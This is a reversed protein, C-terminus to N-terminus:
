MGRGWEHEEFPPPRSPTVKRMLRAKESPTHASARSKHLALM